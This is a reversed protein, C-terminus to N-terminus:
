IEPSELRWTLFPAFTITQISYCVYMLYYFLTSSLTCISNGRRRKHRTDLAAHLLVVLTCRKLNFDRKPEGIQGPSRKSAGRPRALWDGGRFSKSEPVFPHVEALDIM